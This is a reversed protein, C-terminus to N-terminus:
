GPKPDGSQSAQRDILRLEGVVPKGLDERHRHADLV